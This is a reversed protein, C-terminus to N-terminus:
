INSIHYLIHLAPNYLIDLSECWHKGGFQVKDTMKPTKYKRAIYQRFDGATIDHCPKLLVEKTFWWTAGKVLM